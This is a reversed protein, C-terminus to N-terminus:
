ACVGSHYTTTPLLAHAERLLAETAELSICADTISVGFRLPGQGLEQRGEELNSELMWGVIPSNGRQTQRLVDMFVESQRTHDKNSNGHSCDVIINPAIGHREMLAATAAVNSEDYNPTKSGRLVIHGYKNGRTQIVSCQGHQNIGLFRHSGAASMIGNVAILINGDTGNKFGVPSSLGSAMERHTQSEVTRAGIATWSILDGIYQPVIPDLAETAIPLGLEAVALLLRRAVFLGEEVHFSDDLRPDNILGKWGTTTRPKEFYVRMVVLMTDRVADAIVKLRKAYEITAEPDYAACPGVIVLKRRDKRDLIAEVCRRSETIQDELRESLPLAAKVAAPTPLTTLSEVHINETTVM